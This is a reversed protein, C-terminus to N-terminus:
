VVLVQFCIVAGIDCYDSMAMKMIFVLTSIKYLGTSKDIDISVNLLIMYVLLVLRSIDEKEV